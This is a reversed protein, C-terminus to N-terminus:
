NHPIHKIKHNFKNTKISHSEVARYLKYKSVCLRQNHTQLTMHIYSHLLTPMYSGMHMGLFALINSIRSWKELKQRSAFSTAWGSAWWKAALSTALLGWSDLEKQGKDETSANYIPIVVGLKQSPHHLHSSM